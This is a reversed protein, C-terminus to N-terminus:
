YIKSNLFVKAFMLDQPEDIDIQSEISNLILPFVDDTVIKGALLHEKKTIYILGNEFYELDIDQMRQGYTYNTPIFINDVIKGYKKNLSSFSALSGTQYIEFLRISNSILDFPRIPNTPQLLIFADFDLGLKLFELSQFTLVEASTTTDAGLEDPRLTYNVNYSKAISIVEIDDSNVWISEKDFFNLAYEISYSILPKGNLDTINKKPFRKSGKRAPIIVKYIM